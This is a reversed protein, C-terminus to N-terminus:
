ARAVGEAFSFAIASFPLVTVTVSTLKELSISCCLPRESTSKQAAQHPGHRMTAGTM